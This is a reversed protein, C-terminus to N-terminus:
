YGDTQSFLDVSRGVFGEHISIFIVSNDAKKSIWIRYRSLLCVKSYFTGFGIERVRWQKAGVSTIRAAAVGDRPM